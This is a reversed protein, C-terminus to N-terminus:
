FWLLHNGKLFIEKDIMILEQTIVIIYRIILVKLHAIIRLIKCLCM